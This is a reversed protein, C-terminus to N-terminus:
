LPATAGRGPAGNRGEMPAGNRGQKPARLGNRKNAEHIAKLINGGKRDALTEGKVRWTEYDKQFTYANGKQTLIGWSTLEALAKRAEHRGIGTARGVTVSTMEVPKIANRDKRPGFSEMLVEALVVMCRNPLDASAIAAFLDLAIMLFGESTRPRAM